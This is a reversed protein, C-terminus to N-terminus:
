YTFHESVIEVKEQKKELQPEQYVPMIESILDAGVEYPNEV